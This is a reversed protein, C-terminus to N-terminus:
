KGPVSPKNIHKGPEHYVKFTTTSCEPCYEKGSKEMLEQVQLEFSKKKGAM